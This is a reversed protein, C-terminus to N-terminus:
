YLAQFPVYVDDTDYGLHDRASVVGEVHRIAHMLLPIQSRHEATGKVTVRGRVLSDPVGEGTGGSRRTSLHHRFNALAPGACRTPQSGAQGGSILAMWKM